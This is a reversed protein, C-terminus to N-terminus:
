GHRISEMFVELEKRIKDGMASYFQFYKDYAGAFAGIGPVSWFEDCIDTIELKGSISKLNLESYITDFISGSEGYTLTSLDIKMGRKGAAKKQEGNMAEGFSNMKDAAEKATTDSILVYYYEPAIRKVFFMKEIFSPNLNYESHIEFVTRKGMKLLESVFDPTFRINNQADINIELLEFGHRIGVGMLALGLAEEYQSKYKGQSSKQKSSHM